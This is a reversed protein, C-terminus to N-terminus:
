GDREETEVKLNWRTPRIGGAIPRPDGIVHLPKDIGGIEVTAGRLGKFEYTRPFYLVYAVTIGDPRTADSADSQNGPEVLVNEVTETRTSTIENNLDDTEDTHVIRHVIVTEGHMSM